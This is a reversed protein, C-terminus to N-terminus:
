RTVELLAKQCGTPAPITRTSLPLEVRMLDCLCSKYKTEYKAHLAALAPCPPIVFSARSLPLAQLTYSRRTRRLGYVRHAKTVALTCNTTRGLGPEAANPVLYSVFYLQQMGEMSSKNWESTNNYGHERM